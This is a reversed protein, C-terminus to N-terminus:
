LFGRRTPSASVTTIGLAGCVSRWKVHRGWSTVGAVSVIRGGSASYALSFRKERKGSISCPLLDSRPFRLLYASLRM